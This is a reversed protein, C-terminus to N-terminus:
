DGLPIEGREWLGIRVTELRLHESQDPTVFPNALLSKIRGRAESAALARQQSTLDLYTLHKVAM